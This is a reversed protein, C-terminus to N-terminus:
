RMRRVHAGRVWSWRVPVVGQVEHGGIEAGAGGSHRFVAPRSHQPFGRAQHSNHPHEPRIEESTGRRRHRFRSCLRQSHHDM